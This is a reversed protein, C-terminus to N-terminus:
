VGARGTRSAVSFGCAVVWPNADWGMGRKAYLGDWLAVFAFREPSGGQIPSGGAQYHEAAAWDENTEPDIGEALCDDGSIAQLRELRVWEVRLWLRAFLRDMHISPRVPREWPWRIPTWLDMAAAGDAAYTVIPEGCPDDDARRLTERCYLLDGVAIRPYVTLTGPDDSGTVPVDLHELVPRGDATWCRDSTARQLDLRPWLRLSGETEGIFCTRATVPRRDQTQRGALIARVVDDTCILPHERM